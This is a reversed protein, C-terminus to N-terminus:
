YALRLAHRRQRELHPTPIDARYHTDAPGAIGIRDPFLREAIVERWPWPHDTLGVGMATTGDRPHRESRAQVFNRWVAFLALRDLLGSYSRGFAITERRHAAESHRLFRHLQDNAFLAADRARAAPTRRSGKPGRKPNPHVELALARRRRLRRVASAIARDDDAVLHLPESPPLGEILSTFASTVAGREPKGWRAELRERLRKQHDSMGGRRRERAFAFGYVFWSDKGTATPLTCPFYQSGAFTDFDDVIVPERAQLERLALTHFLLGHRGLRRARWTVTSHHCGVTRAIQRHASGGVLGCAIPVTLEPRKLYYSFAFSQQSFTRGCSCCLFRQVRRGDARSFFGWRLYTFGAVTRHHACDRRPCHPPRFDEVDEIIRGPEM